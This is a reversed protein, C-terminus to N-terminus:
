NRRRLALLGCAALLALSAPEPVQAVRFGVLNSEITPNSFVPRVSETQADDNGFSGGRQGRFSGFARTENWEWVNGAMDFTGNFNSAFSGVPTTNGIGGLVNAQQANPFRGDLTPYLWYNSTPGGQNAPQFYGAKYWEDETPVVWQAGANRNVSASAPNAVGGLTYAGIETDGDGQGNNLWNAFRTTDWFSVFNVPNNERGAITSYSFSGDTGSRAIGGFTGAMGTNYLSFPDSRAKANLFAAYQANTVETTGISYVYTVTGRGNRPDAANGPNGIPATPIIVQASAVIASLGTVAAIAAVTISSKVFM